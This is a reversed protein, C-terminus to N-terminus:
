WDNDPTTEARGPYLAGKFDTPQGLRRSNPHSLKIRLREFKHVGHLAQLDFVELQLHFLKQPISSLKVLGSWRAYCPTSQIEIGQFVLFNAKYHVKQHCASQEFLDIM